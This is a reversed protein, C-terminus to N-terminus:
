KRKGTKKKDEKSEDKPKGLKIKTQGNEGDIVLLNLVVGKYRAEERKNKDTIKYDDEPNRLPIKVALHTGKNSLSYIGNADINLINSTIKLEKV